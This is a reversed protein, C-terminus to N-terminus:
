DAMRGSRKVALGCALQPSGTFREARYRSPVPM